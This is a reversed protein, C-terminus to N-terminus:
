TTRPKPILATGNGVIINGDTKSLAAIATLDSDLPQAGSVASTVAAKVTSLADEIDELPTNHQTAASLTGDTVLSGAPLTYTDGSFPM